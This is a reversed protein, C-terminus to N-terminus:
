WPSVYITKRWDLFGRRYFHMTITQAARERPHDELRVRRRDVRQQQPQRQAGLRGLVEHLVQEDLEGGGVEFARAVGSGVDAPDRDVQRHVPAAPVSAPAAQCGSREIVVGEIRIRRGRPNNVIGVVDLANEVGSASKCGQLAIGEDEAVDLLFRELADAADDAFGCVLGAAQTM